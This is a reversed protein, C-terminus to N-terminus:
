IWEVELKGKQYGDKLRCFEVKPLINRNFPYNPNPHLVGLIEPPRTGFPCLLIASIPNRAYEILGNINKTPRIFAASQLHTAQYPEGVAEVL